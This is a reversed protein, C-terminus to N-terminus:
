TRVGTANDYVSQAESGELLSLAQGSDDAVASVWAKGAIILSVEVGDRVSRQVIRGLPHRKMWADLHPFRAPAKARRYAAVEPLVEAEIDAGVHESMTMPKKIDNM